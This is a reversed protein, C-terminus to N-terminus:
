KSSMKSKSKKKLLKDEVKHAAEHVKEKGSQLLAGLISQGPGDNELVQLKKLFTVCVSLPNVLHYFEGDVECYAHLADMHDMPQFFEMFYPGGSHVRKAATHVRDMAIDVINPLTVVEIRGDGPNAEINVDKSPVEPEVALESKLNWFHAAGGAYSNVNLFMISEPNGVLRGVQEAEDEDEEDLYEFIAPASSDTGMHLSSILDSVRQQSRCDCETFIGSCAYVVLNCSQSKTRRKDFEIGM